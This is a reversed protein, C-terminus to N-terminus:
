TNAPLKPLVVTGKKKKTRPLGSVGKSRGKAVGVQNNDSVKSILNKRPYTLLMLNRKRSNVGKLLAPSRPTRGLVKNNSGLLIGTMVKNLEKIGYIKPSSSLNTGNNAFLSQHGEVGTIGNENELQFIDDNETVLYEGDEVLLDDDEEDIQEEMVKDDVNGMGKEDDQSDTGNGMRLDSGERLTSQSSGISKSTGAQDSGTRVQYLPRPWATTKGRVGAQFDEMKLDSIIIMNSTLIM